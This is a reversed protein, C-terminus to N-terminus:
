GGGRYPFYPRRTHNLKWLMVTQMLFLIDGHLRRLRCSCLARPLSAFAVPRSSRALPGGGFGGGGRALDLEGREDGLAGEEARAEGVRGIVGDGEDACAAERTEPISAGSRGEEDARESVLDDRVVVRERETRLRQIRTM